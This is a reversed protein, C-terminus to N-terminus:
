RSPRPSPNRRRDRSDHKIRPWPQCLISSEITALAAFGHRFDPFGSRTSNALTMWTDPRSGDDRGRAPAINTHIKILEVCKEFNDTQLAERFGRLRAIARLGGDARLNALKFMFQFCFQKLTESATNRQCGRALNERFICLPHEIHPPLCLIRQVLQFGRRAAFQHDRRVLRRADVNQRRHKRFVLTLKGTHLQLHVAGISAAHHLRDHFVHRVESQRLKRHHLFAHLHDLHMAVLHAAHDPRIMRQRLHVLDPRSSTM